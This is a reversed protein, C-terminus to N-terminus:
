NKLTLLLEHFTTFRCTESLDNLLNAFSTAYDEVLTGNSIFEQPHTVIAAYGYSKFSQEVEALLSEPNKMKWVGDLLVSVEVTAPINRVELFTAPQHYDLCTSIVSYSEERMASITAENFSFEPPVLLEPEVDLLEKMKNKAQFLIHMQEYFELEALNEHKWGHVGVESGLAVESRVAEVLEVDEGFMGAIVALSLPLNNERSFNLLFLQGDRFAFDQIDDIRLVLLRSHPSGSLVDSAVLFFAFLSLLSLILAMVRRMDIKM